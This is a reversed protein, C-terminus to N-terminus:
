TAPLAGPDTPAQGHTFMQPTTLRGQTTMYSVTREARWAEKRRADPWEQVPELVRISPCVKLLGRSHVGPIPPGGPLDLPGRRSPRKRRGPPSKDHQSAESSCPITFGRSALRPPCASWALKISLKLAAASHNVARRTDLFSRRPERAVLYEVPHWLSPSWPISM